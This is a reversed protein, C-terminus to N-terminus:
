KEFNFSGEHRFPLALMRHALSVSGEVKYALRPDGQQGLRKLHDLLGVFNSTVDVRALAEGHAPLDVLENSVGRAFSKGNLHLEYNMGAIPLAVANPNQIRLTLEYRQEFVGMQKLELGALSVYPAELRQTLAACGTIVLCALVMCFNARRVFFRRRLESLVNRVLMTYM